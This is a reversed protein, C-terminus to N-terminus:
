LRHALQFAEVWHLERTLINTTKKDGETNHKRDQTIKGKSEPFQLPPQLRMAMPIMKQSLAMVM